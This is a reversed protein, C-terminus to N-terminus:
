CRASYRDVATIATADIYADARHYVTTRLFSSERELEEDNVDIHWARPFGTRTGYVIRDAFRQFLVVKDFKDKGVFLGPLAHSNPQAL